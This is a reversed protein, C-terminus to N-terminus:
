APSWGIRRGELYFRKEPAEGLSFTKRPLVGDQIVAPFLKDESLAPLLLGATNEGASLAFLSDGGHIYDIKGGHAGQFEEILSQIIGTPIIAGAKRFRIVAYEGRSLLGATFTDPGRGAACLAATEDASSTTELTFGPKGRLFSFFDAPNIEKIIRHIAHFELGPDYLNVVEALAYRLPHNKRQQASLSPKTEEWVAKATALSHNGDGMAFLLNGAGRSLVSLSEALHPAAKEASLWRGTVSGGGLMLEGEYVPTEGAAMDFLEGMLENKPDDILVMVHSLELAADRRIKVRPPLREVITGETPRILSQSGPKYDYHEMDLALAVGRRSKHFPTKRDVLILGPPLPRLIGRALYDKMTNKIAAIASDARDSHLYLEPLICHLASPKGEAIRAARNWYEPESTYQDCAIVAWEGIDIGAAPILIEPLLVGFSELCMFAQSIEM